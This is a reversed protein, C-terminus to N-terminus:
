RTLSKAADARNRGTPPVCCLSQQQLEVSEGTEVSQALDGAGGEVFGIEGEEEESLGHVVFSEEGPKPWM